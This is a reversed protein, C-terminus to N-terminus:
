KHTPNQPANGQGMAAEAEEKKKKRKKMEAIIALGILLTLVFGVLFGILKGWAESRQEAVTQFIFILATM